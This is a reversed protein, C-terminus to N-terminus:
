RGQAEPSPSESEGNYIDGDNGIYNANGGDSSNIDYSSFDYQYMYVLFGSVVLVITVMLAYVIRMVRKNQMKLERLIETALPENLEEKIQENELDEM